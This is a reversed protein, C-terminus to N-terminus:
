AHLIGKKGRMIGAAAIQQCAQQGASDNDLCLGITNSKIWEWRINAVGFIAATNEYGASILSLADFAGETIYCTDQQLAKANFVGKAGPLHDHRDQKPVKENTGVARGYLNVIEGSTNTHPFVLRGWKWQRVSRGDKYHPWEGWGAFGVGYRIALDIPIKRKALYERGWKYPNDNRLFNQQLKKILESLEMNPEPEERKQRIVIESLNNKQASKNNNGNKGAIWQRKKELRHEELYGWAQCQYCIFHGNQQNVELSRQTDGGHLPCYFRFKGGQRKGQEQNRYAMIDSMSLKEM